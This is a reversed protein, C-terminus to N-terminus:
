PLGQTVVEGGPALLSALRTAVRPDGSLGAEVVIVDFPGAVKSLLLVPDGIMVHAREGVGALAFRERARDARRRDAEIAIMMGSGAVRGALDDAGTVGLALVRPRADSTNPSM